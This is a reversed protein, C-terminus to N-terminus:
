SQRVSPRPPTVARRRRKTPGNTVVGRKPPVGSTLDGVSAQSSVLAEQSSVVAEQSSVLVEQTKQSEGTMSLVLESLKTLQEQQKAAIAAYDGVTADRQDIHRQVMGFATTLEDVMPSDLARVLPQQEDHWAVLISLPAHSQPPMSSM